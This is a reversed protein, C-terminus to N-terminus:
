EIVEELLSRLKDLGYQYRDRATNISVGQVTAIARFTMAGQLHLVITERQHLPLEALTNNLRQSEDKRVASQESEDSDSGIPGTSDLGVIKYMKSRFRERVGNVVCTILYNKLSGFPVFRGSCKSFSVFVDHLIDEASATDNLLSVAITLLRDKYKEYIKCLSQGDGHTLKWILLEDELM